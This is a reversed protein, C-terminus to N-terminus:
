KITIRYLKPGTESLMFKTSESVFFYDDGEFHAIGEIQKFDKKIRVRSGKRIEKLNGSDPVTIVLFRPKLLWSYGCLVIRKKAESYNAGTILLRTKITAVYDATYKGPKAPIKFIRSCPRPKWEKTFLFISDHLVVMAECDFNTRHTKGFDKVEPWEFTISDLEVRDQLLAEKKLRYIQLLSREGSNNGFNGIYLYNKDQSMEEWDINKVPLDFSKLIGGTAPDIAYIKSVDSDNHTWLQGNWTILGSGEQIDSGLPVEAKPTVAYSKFASTRIVLKDSAHQQGFSVIPIWYLISILICNKICHLTTKM